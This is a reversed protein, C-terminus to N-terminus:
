GVQISKLLKNTTSELLSIEHELRSLRSWFIDQKSADNRKQAIRLHYDYSHKKQLFRTYQDNSEQLKRAQLHKHQYMSLAYGVGWNRRSFDCLKKRSRWVEYIKGNTIIRYPGVTVRNPRSNIIPTKLNPIENAFFDNIKQYSQKETYTYQLM